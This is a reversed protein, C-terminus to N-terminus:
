MSLKLPIPNAIFVTERDMTMTCHACKAYIRLVPIFCAMSKERYENICVTASTGFLSSQHHPEMWRVCAITHQITESQETSNQRQTTISHNFYYQVRGISRQSTDFSSINNGCTPWYAAIVSSSKASRNNLDSGIVDDGIGLRGSCLYFPSIYHIEYGPYLQQYLSHLHEIDDSDFVLEETPQFLTTYGSDKYNSQNVDFCQHQLRLLTILDTDCKISHVGSSIKKSGMRSTLKTLDQDHVTTSLSQILQTRIFRHMFQSEISRNNTSTKGILGNYREFSYCWTAHAPGFDLLTDKLHLHLHMNPTCIQSGYLLEIKKCFLELLRDATNLDPIRILRQTLLSCARVYLLWCRYHEDPLINKLLVPSYITIWSSWQSATFGLYNSKMNIPLRGVSSPVVYKKSVADMDLLNKNSLLGLNIWSTFMHKATGLYLNHMIDIALFRIPDFYPISLLACPRVGYKAEATKIGTMTTESKIIDCHARHETATRKRWSDRNFLDDADQSFEKYCKNCGLRAAHSLFGCVKRTAPIDCTICSLALRLIVHTDQPTKVSLGQTYILNLEEIFPLLYSDMTLKPEKPGPIIGVLIVNDDNYRKERPLNQITVYIAGVSYNVHKYPQFWDVNLAILYCYPTSLFNNRFSKWVNGDYIDGLVDPPITPERERWRECSSLFGPKLALRQLSIRLPCYPYTKIPVLKEGLQTSIKQLLPSQCPCRRSSHPHNPYKIYRCLKSEKKGNPLTVLCDDYSYISHCKPCVIFEIVHRDNIGLLKEATTITLPIEDGLKNLHPNLFACGLFKIFYKFFHLMYQVATETIHFISQWYFLFWLLKWVVISIAPYSSDVPPNVQDNIVTDDTDVETDTLPLSITQDM